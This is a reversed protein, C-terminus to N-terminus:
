YMRVIKVWARTWPTASNNETVLLNSTTRAEVEFRDNVAAQGYLTFSITCVDQAGGITNTYAEFQDVAASSGNKILRFHQYLSGGPATANQLRAWWRIEFAYFGAVNAYFNFGLPTFESRSGSNGGSKIILGGAVGIPEYAEGLSFGAPLDAWRGQGGADSTLVRGEAQYGDVIRLPSKPAAPTGGDTVILKTQSLTPPITGIALNGDYTVIVDDGTHQNGVTDYLADVHFMGQPDETRVGVQAFAGGSAVLCAALCFFM